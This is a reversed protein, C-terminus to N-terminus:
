VAALFTCFFCGLIARFFCLRAKQTPGYLEVALINWTKFIKTKGDDSATVTNETAVPTPWCAGAPSTAATVEDPARASICRLCASGPDPFLKQTHKFFRRDSSPQLSPQYAVRGIAAPLSVLRSIGVIATSVEM